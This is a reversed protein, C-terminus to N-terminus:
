IMSDSGLTGQEYPVKRAGKENINEGRTQIYEKWLRWYYCGHNFFFFFFLCSKM